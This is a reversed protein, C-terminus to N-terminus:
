VILFLKARVSGTTKPFPVWPGILVDTIWRDNSREAEYRGFARQEGVIMARALGVRHLRDRITRESVAVGHRHFLIQGIQAASRTPLELRLAAMEEYLERHRRVVGTDVRAKPRLADLGGGRWARIWRDITARSYRHDGGDPHAHSRAAIERVIVGRESRSARENTAEAIVGFRHLALREAWDNIQDGQM